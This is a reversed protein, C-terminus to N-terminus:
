ECTFGKEVLNGKVRDLVEQCYTSGASGEAISRTEGDKSYKLNCGEKTNEITMQRVYQGLKCTVDAKGLTATKAETTAEVKKNDEKKDASKNKSSCGILTVALAMVVLSVVKM